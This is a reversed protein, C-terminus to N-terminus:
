SCCHKRHLIHWIDTGLFGCSRYLLEPHYPNNCQGSVTVFSARGHMRHLLELVIYRGLGRHRYDASVQIWELSGERIDRDIEGIGSAVIMGTQKDAISLWCDPAYVRHSAYSRLSDETFFIGGYCRDIHAALEAPTASVFEFGEPLKPVQLSQMPHLLRFYPDDSYHKLIDPNFDAHHLILMDDPITIEATKWWPLSSARCPDHLYIDLTLM